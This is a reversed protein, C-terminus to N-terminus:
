KVDVTMIGYVWGGVAYYTTSSENQVFGQTLVEDAEDAPLNRTLFSRAKKLTSFTGLESNEIVSIKSVKYVKMNKDGLYLIGRGCLNDFLFALITKLWVRGLKTQASKVVVRRGCQSLLSRVM